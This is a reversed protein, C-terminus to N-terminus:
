RLDQFLQGGQALVQLGLNALSRFFRAALKADQRFAKPRVDLLDGFPHNQDALPDVAELGLVGPLEGFHSRHEPEGMGLQLTPKTGEFVRRLGVLGTEPM